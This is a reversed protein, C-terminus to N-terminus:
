QNQINSCLQKKTQFIKIILSLYIIGLHTTTNIEPRLYLNNIDFFM